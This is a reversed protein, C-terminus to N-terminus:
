GEDALQHFVSNLNEPIVEHYRIRVSSNLPHANKFSRLQSSFVLLIPHKDLILFDLYSFEEGVLWRENTVLM